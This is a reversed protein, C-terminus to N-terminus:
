LEADATAHIYYAQSPAAVDSNYVIAGRTGTYLVAANATSHTDSGSRWQGATGGFPSYLAISPVARKEVKFPWQTYPQSASNTQGAYVWSVLMGGTWGQNHGPKTNLDFTKEYYRQCLALEQMASRQEFPTEVPGEELQVQALDFMQLANLPLNWEVRLYDNGNTGLVKGAISPLQVVVVYKQWTTTINLQGAGVGVGASPSGGTGFTQRFSVSISRLVDSRAWFSLTAKKGALTGVGEVAQTILHQTSGTGAITQHWRLFYKPENPVESQGPTFSQRSIVVGANADWDCRYRDAVYGGINTAPNLTGRQWYDFNGNIILNRRYVQVPFKQMPDLKALQRIALVLQDNRNEAPVIGAAQIANVLEETVANGWSAPILSGPMGTAPNEDVFKGNVLGVSPVSKPYDM